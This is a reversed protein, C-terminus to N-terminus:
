SARNGAIFAALEDALADFSSGRHGADHLLEWGHGAGDLHVIPEPSHIEAALTQLETISVVQDAPAVAFFSPIAISSAATSTDADLYRIPGSLDAVADLQHKSDESAALVTTTGGMSAGVAVVRTAGQARAWRAAALVAHAGSRLVLADPPCLTAGYGCLNLMVSRVGHKALYQAYPYWGCFGTDSQHVFVAVTTQSSDGVIGTHFWAGDAALWQTSTPAVPATTYGDGCLAAPSDITMTPKALPKPPPDAAPTSACGALVVAAVAVAVLGAWRSRTTPLRVAGRYDDDAAGPV